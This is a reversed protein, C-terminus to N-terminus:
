LTDGENQWFNNFNITNLINALILLGGDQNKMWGTSPSYCWHLWFTM